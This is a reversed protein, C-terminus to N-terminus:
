RPSVSIPDLIFLGSVEKYEVVKAIVYVNSEAKVFSPLYLDEIGLDRVGVDEFKFIPGYLNEEMYDGEGILLDYRTKYDGHNDIYSIHGDFEIIKGKYNDAFEKIRSDLYDRLDLISAFDECNDITLSEIEIVDESTVEPALSDVVIETDEVVPFTHYTVIIKANRDFLTDKSFSTSGDVSVQEVEGDKTLWGLILDQVTETEINEFGADEFQSVVEQFNKNKIDNSSMPSHIKNEDDGNCSAFILSCTAFVLLILMIKKM